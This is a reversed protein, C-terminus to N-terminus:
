HCFRVMDASKKRSSSKKKPSTQDSGDLETEMKKLLEASTESWPRLLLAQPSNAGPFASVDGTSPHQRDTDVRSIDPVSSDVAAINATSTIARTDEFLTQDSISGVDYQSAPIARHLMSFENRERQLRDVTQNILQERLLRQQLIRQNRLRIEQEEQQRRQQELQHQRLQMQLLAARDMPLEGVVLGSSQVEQELLRRLQAERQQHQLFQYIQQRQRNQRQEDHMQQILNQQLVYQATMTDSSPSLNQEGPNKEESSNGDSSNANNANGTYRQWQQNNNGSRSPDM